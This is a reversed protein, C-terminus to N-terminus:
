SIQMQLIGMDRFVLKDAILSRLKAFASKHEDYSKALQRIQTYSKVLGVAGVANVMEVLAEYEAGDHIDGFGNELLATLLQFAQGRSSQTGDSLLEYFRDVSYRLLARYCDEAPMEAGIVYRYIEGSLRVKEAMHGYTGAAIRQYQEMLMQLQEPDSPLPSLEATYEPALYVAEENTAATLIERDWSAPDRQNQISPDVKQCPVNKCLLAVKSVRAQDKATLESLLKKYEASVIRQNNRYQLYHPVIHNNADKAGFCLMKALSCRGRPSIRTDHLTAMKRADSISRDLYLRAQEALYANESSLYSEFRWLEDARELAMCLVMNIVSWPALDSAKLKTIHERVGSFAGCIRRKMKYEEHKYKRRLDATDAPTSFRSISEHSVQFDLLVDYLASYLCYAVADQEKSFHTEALNYLVYMAYKGGLAGIVYAILRIYEPERTLIPPVLMETIREALVGNEVPYNLLINVIPDRLYAPLNYRHDKFLKNLLTVQRQKEGSLETLGSLWELFADYEEPDLGSLLLLVSRVFGQPDIIDPPFFVDGGTANSRFVSELYECWNGTINAMWAQTRLKCVEPSQNNLSDLVLQEVSTIVAPEAVRISMNELNQVTFCAFDWGNDILHMQQDHILLQNLIALSATHSQSPRDDYCKLMWPVNTKSTISVLRVLSFHLMPLSDEFGSKCLELLQYATAYDDPFEQLVRKLVAATEKEMGDRLAKATITAVQRINPQNGDPLILELFMKSSPLLAWNQLEDPGYEALEEILTEYNGAALSNRLSEIWSQAEHFRDALLLRSLVVVGLNRQSGFLLRGAGKRLIELCAPEGTSVAIQSVAKLQTHVMHISCKNVQTCLNQILCCLNETDNMDRLYSPHKELKDEIYLRCNDSTQAWVALAVPLREPASSLTECLEVYEKWREPNRQCCLHLFNARGSDGAEFPIRACLDWYEASNPNSCLLKIAQISQQETLPHEPNLNRLEQLSQADGTTFSQCFELFAIIESESGLDLVQEFLVLLTPLPQEIQLSAPIAEMGLVDLTTEPFDAQSDTLVALYNLMANAYIPRGQLQELMAIALAIQPSGSQVVTQMCLAEAEQAIEVPFCDDVLASFYMRALYDRFNPSTALQDSYNERHIFLLGERTKGIQKAYNRIASCVRYDHCYVTGQLLTTLVQFMEPDNGMAIIMKELKETTEQHNTEDASLLLVQLSVSAIQVSLEGAQSPYLHRLKHLCLLEHEVNGEKRQEQLSQYLAEAQTEVNGVSLVNQIYVALTVINRDLATKQLQEYLEETASGGCTVQTLLQKPCKVLWQDFCTCLIEVVVDTAHNAAATQLLPLCIEPTCAAAAQACLQPTDTMPKGVALEATARYLVHEETIDGAQELLELFSTYERRSYLISLYQSYHDKQLEENNLLLEYQAAENQSAAYINWLLKQASPESGAIQAAIEAASSLNGALAYIRYAISVADRGHPYMGSRYTEGIVVPDLKLSNLLEHDHVYDRLAREEFLVSHLYPVASVTHHLKLIQAYVENGQETAIVQIRQHTSASLSIVLLADQLNERFVEQAQEPSLKFRCVLYLRRCAEFRKQVDANMEFLQVAEAWRQEDALLLMLYEYSGRNKGSIGQWMYQEALGNRNGQLVYLRCGIQYANDGVPYDGAEVADQISQIQKDSYGMAQLQEPQALTAIANQNGRIVAQEFENPEGISELSQLRNRLTEALRTDELAEAASILSPLYTLQYQLHIDSRSLQLAQEPDHRCLVRFWFAEDQVSYDIKDNFAQWVAVFDEEREEERYFNLLKPACQASEYRLGLILYREADAKFGKGLLRCAAAFCTLELSTNGEPVVLKRVAPEQPLIKELYLPWTATYESGMELATKLLLSNTEPITILQQEAVEAMSNTCQDLLQLIDDIVNLFSREEESFDFLYESAWRLKQPMESFYETLRKLEELYHDDSEQFSVVDRFRIYEDLVRRFDTLKPDGNVGNEYKKQLAAYDRSPTCDEGCKWHCRGFFSRVDAALQGFLTLAQKLVTSHFAEKNVSTRIEELSLDTGSSLVPVSQLMSNLIEWQAEYEAILESMRGSGSVAPCKGTKVAEAFAFLDGQLAQSLREIVDLQQLLDTYDFTNTRSLFKRLWNSLETKDAVSPTCFGKLVWYQKTNDINAPNPCFVAYVNSGDSLQLKTDMVLVPEDALDMEMEGLLLSHMLIHAIHERLPDSKIDFSEDLQKLHKVNQTWFNMYAFAHMCRVEAITGAYSVTDALVLALGDESEKFEPMSLLWAKLGKGNSFKKYDIPKLRDPISAFIIQGEEQLLEVLKLVIDQTTLGTELM